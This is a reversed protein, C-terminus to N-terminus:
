RALPLDDNLPEHERAEVEIPKARYTVGRGRASCGAWAENVERMTVAGADRTAREAQMAHTLEHWITRGAQEASLYSKVMIRHYVSTATDLNYHRNGDCRYSGGRYRLQHNGRTSGYSSTSAFEIPWTIGLLDAAERVADRDIRFGQAARERKRYDGREVGIVVIGRREYHARADGAYHALLVKRVGGELTVTFRQRRM